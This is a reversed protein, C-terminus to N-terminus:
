LMTQARLLMLLEVTVDDASAERVGVGPRSQLLHHVSAGHM